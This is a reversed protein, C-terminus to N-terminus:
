RANDDLWYGSVVLTASLRRWDEALIVNANEGRSAASERIDIRDLKFAPYASEAIKLLSGTDRELFDFEAAIQARKVQAPLGPEGDPFRVEMSRPVIGISQLERTLHDQLQAAAASSNGAQLFPDQPATGNATDTAGARQRVVAEMRSLLARRRDVEDVQEGASAMLSFVSWLSFVVLIGAAAFAAIRSLRSKTLIDTM